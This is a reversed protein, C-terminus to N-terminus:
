RPTRRLALRALASAVHVFQRGRHAFGAIDRGTAAHAMTTPVEVLKMGGRLARVTIGVEAGYGSSFPRV